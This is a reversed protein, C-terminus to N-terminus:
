EQIIEQGEAAVYVSGTNIGDVVLMVQAIMAPDKCEILKEVLRSVINKILYLDKVVQAPQRSAVETFRRKLHDQIHSKFTTNEMLLIVAAESLITQALHKKDTPKM